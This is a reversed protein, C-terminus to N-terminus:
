RPPPFVLEPADPTERYKMLHGDSDIFWEGGSTGPVWANRIPLLPVKNGDDDYLAAPASEPVKGVRARADDGSREIKVMMIRHAIQMTIIGAGALLIGVISLVGGIIWLKM